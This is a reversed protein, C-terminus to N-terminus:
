NSHVLEMKVKDTHKILCKYYNLVKFGVSKYLRIARQNDIIVSLDIKKLKLVKFSYDIILKVAEKGIGKGWYNKNGILIGLTAIKNKYDIPELKINGIHKNNFKDFIGVFLADEKNLQEELYNKIEKITIKKTSLFRNVEFDNLWNCYEQSADEVRLKRLYIRKGIM